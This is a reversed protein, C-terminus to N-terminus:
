NSSTPSKHDVNAVVAASGRHLEPMTFAFDQQVTVSVPRGDKVAPAFKWQRVADLAAKEFARDSSEVIRANAVDGKPTVTFSVRVDGEALAHRLQASYEPAVQYIPTAAPSQAFMPASASVSLAATLLSVTVNRINMPLLSNLNIHALSQCGPAQGTPKPDTLM